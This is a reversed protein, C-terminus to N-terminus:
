ANWKNAEGMMQSRGKLEYKGYKKWREAKTQRAKPEPLRHWINFDPVQVLRGAEAETAGEKQGDDEGEVGVGGCIHITGNLAVIVSHVYGCDVDVAKVPEGTSSRVVVHRPITVTGTAMGLGNRGRDTKGWAYVDGTTSVAMSIDVGASMQMIKVDENVFEMVKVPFMQKLRDGHGLAGSNGAGFTFLGGKDDLLISHRHGASAGVINVGQLSDIVMPICQTSSDDLKLNAIRELHALLEAAAGTEEGDPPAVIEDVQVAAPPQPVADLAAADAAAGVLPLAEDGGLQVVAADADYDYPTFSRGLVGFHGLGFSFVEGDETVCLTHRAGCSISSVCEDELGGKTVQKPELQPRKDGHGTQGCFGDGWTYLDGDTTVAASHLEGASVCTCRVRSLAEVYQPRLVDPLQKGASFGHGLAGYQGSGFSLVRGTSTLLLTHAIRVLGGGASVQVIRIGYGVGGMLRKPLREDQRKGNGLQGRKGVGWSAVGSGGAGCKEGDGGVRCVTHEPSVSAFRGNVFPPLMEPNKRRIGLTAYGCVSEELFRAYAVFEDADGGSKNQRCKRTVLRGTDGGDFSAELLARAEAEDHCMSTFGVARALAQNPRNLRALIYPIRVERLMHNVLKCTLTMAGLDHSNLNCLILRMADVPVHLLASTQIVHKWPTASADVAPLKCDEDDKKEAVTTTSVAKPKEGDEAEKQQERAEKKQQRLLRRREKEEQSRAM